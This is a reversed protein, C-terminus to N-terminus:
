PGRNFMTERNRTYDPIKIFMTERSRACDYAKILCLRQVGLVTM